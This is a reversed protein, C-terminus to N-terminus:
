KSLKSFERLLIGTERVFSPELRGLASFFSLNSLNARRVFYRKERVGLEIARAIPSSLDRAAETIEERGFRTKYAVLSLTNITGYLEDLSVWELRPNFDRGIPNNVLAAFILAYLRIKRIFPTYINNLDYISLIVSKISEDFGFIPKLEEQTFHYEGHKRLIDCVVSVPILRIKSRSSKSSDEIDAYQRCPDSFSPKGVLVPYVLSWGQRGYKVQYTPYYDRLQSVKGHGVKNREDVACCELLSVFSNDALPAKVIVDPSAEDEGKWECEFGLFEFATRVAKEFDQGRGTELGKIITELGVM